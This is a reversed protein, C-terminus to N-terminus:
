YKTRESLKQGCEDCYIIEDRGQETEQDVLDGTADCKVYNTTTIEQKFVTSGCYECPSHFGAKDQTAGSVDDNGASEDRERWGIDEASVKSDEDGNPLNGNVM